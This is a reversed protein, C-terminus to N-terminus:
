KVPPISTKSVTQWPWHGDIELVLNWGLFTCVLTLLALIGDSTFSPKTAVTAVIDAAVLIGLSLLLARGLEIKYVRFHDGDVKQRHREGFRWTALAIGLFYAWEWSAISHSITKLRKDILTSM